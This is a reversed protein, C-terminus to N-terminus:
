IAIVCRRCREGDRDSRWESRARLGRRRARDRRRRARRGPQGGGQAVAGRGPHRCVPRNRLRPHCGSPGGSADRGARDRQAAGAMEREISYEFMCSVPPTAARGRWATSSAPASRISSSRSCSRCPAPRRCCRGWPRRAVPWSSTPRSRSWNRRTDAFSPPMPRPGAPTSGCTAASPGAWYRWGRSSRRRRPGAMGSRGRSRAPAHRHAADARAAARAGRAAVGGGRRRAASIFERRKM